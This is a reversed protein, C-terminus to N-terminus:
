ESSVRREPSSFPKLFIHFLRDNQSKDESQRPDAWFREQFLIGSGSLKRSSHCLLIISAGFIYKDFGGKGGKELPLIPSNSIEMNGFTIKRLRTEDPSNYFDNNGNM